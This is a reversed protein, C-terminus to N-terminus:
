YESTTSQSKEYKIQGHQNTRPLGSEDLKPSADHWHPNPHKQDPPHQSQVRPRGDAGETTYQRRGRGGSQSTASRSTPTNAQRMADRRAARSTVKKSDATPADGGGGADDKRMSSNPSSGPRELAGNLTDLGQGMAAAGSAALAAGLAAVGAGPVAGFGGTTVAVAGGAVMFGSGALMDFAGGAVEGVGKAVQYLTSFDRDAGTLNFLIGGPLVGSAVGIVSGAIVDTVDRAVDMIQDVASPGHQNSTSSQNNSVSQTKATAKADDAKPAPAASTQQAAAVAGSDDMDAVPPPPTDNISASIGMDAGGSVQRGTPDTFYLPNNLAYGYRNFEQLNSIDGVLPDPTLFRMTAPDYLRAGMNILGLEDDHEHGTFGRRVSSKPSEGQRTPNLPDIRGGFPDFRFREVVKGTQDTVTEVSGLHENLTYDIRESAKGDAHRVHVVQAFAGNGGSIRYVNQLEGDTFRREFLSGIYTTEFGDDRRKHVRRHYADYAFMTKQSTGASTMEISEPLSFSTYAVKRGPAVTQDGRRNYTYTGKPGSTVAHPGANVGHGFTISSGEGATVLRDKINGVDDFVYEFAWSKQGAQYSWTKLRNLADYSFGENINSREDKRVTLNGALDYDYFFAQLVKGDAALSDIRQQLVDRIPDFKQGATIGNGFTEKTIRAQADVEDLKWYYQSSGDQPRVSALRGTHQDYDNTVAFRARSEVNPYHLTKTRSYVDYETDFDFETAGVRTRANIPRSLADFHEEVTVVENGSSVNTRTFSGLRGVGFIASDWEFSDIGLLNFSGVPRGLSDYQHVTTTAEADTENILEGFANSVFSTLGADPDLLSLRRGRSDYEIKTEHNQPDWIKRLQSFPGYSYRTILEKGRDDFQATRVLRRLTDFEKRTRNGNADVVTEVAGQYTHEVNSGDANTISRLQHFNDFLYQRYVPAQTEKHPKASRMLGFGEAEYDQESIDWTGAFGLVRTEIVRGLHDTSTISTEGGGTAEFIRTGVHTDNPLYSRRTDAEDPSDHLVLRGFGDYQWSEQVGNADERLALKGFSPEFAQRVIHGAANRIVVPYTGDGKDYTFQTQRKTGGATTETKHTVNGVADRIYETELFLKSTLDVREQPETIVREVRATQSNVAIETTRTSKEGDAASSTEVVGTPLGLLWSDLLTRYSTDRVVRDGEGSVVELHVPNGFDDFGMKTVLQAFPAATGEIKDIETVTDPLVAVTGGWSPVKTQYMTERRKIRVLSSGAGQVARLTEVRPLGLFPYLTGVRSQNDFETTVVTDSEREHVRRKGFGLFGRGRIDIRGDFYEYDYHRSGKMGENVDLRRVVEIGKTLCHQPYTCGAGQSYGSDAEALSKYNVTAIGGTGDVVQRILHPRPGKRYYIHFRHDDEMKVLDTLGDGNFDGTKALVRLSVISGELTSKVDDGGPLTVERVAFNEGKSVYLVPKPRLYPPDDGKKLPTDDGKDWLLLDQRGDQDWDVVAVNGGTDPRLIFYQGRFGQVGDPYVLPQTMADFGNGSNISLYPQSVFNPVYNQVRVEPSTSVVDDLGDGNVDVFYQDVLSGETPPWQAQAWVRLNNELGQVKGDSFLRLARFYPLVGPVHRNALFSVAQDGDTDRSYGRHGKGYFYAQGEYTDNGHDILEVLKTYAPALVGNQNVRVGLHFLCNEKDSCTKDADAEWMPRLADPLGDGNIDAFYIEFDTKKHEARPGIFQLEGPDVKGVFKSGNFRFHEWHGSKSGDSGRYAIFDDKGDRDIDILHGPVFSASERNLRDVVVQGTPAFTEIASGLSTHGAFMAFWSAEGDAKPEDIHPSRYLLDDLGDGNLDGVHLFSSRFEPKRFASSVPGVDFEADVSSGKTWYFFTPAKCVNRADCEEVSSLRSRPNEEGVTLDYDMHYARVDKYFKIGPHGVPGFATARSTQVVIRSLRKKELIRVGSVYQVIPDPRDEYHMFVRNAGEYKSGEHNTYHVHDLRVSVGNKETPYVDRQYFYNISNGDRDVSKVLFWNLRVTPGFASKISKSLIETNDDRTPAARPAELIANPANPLSGYTHIWGEKDRVEFRLPGIDDTQEVTIRAFEERETRFQRRGEFPEPLELLRKGDWCLADADDFAIPAPDAAVSLDRECRGIASPGKLRWGVGLLGNGARSSYGMSLRPEVGLRGPPIEIPINYTFAGDHSVSLDGETRGAAVGELQSTTQVTDTPPKRESSAGAVCFGNGVYYGDGQLCSFTPCAKASPTATATRQGVTWTVQPGSFHVAVVDDHQGPKFLTPQGLPSGTGPNFKNQPGLEVTLTKSSRNQYGFLAVHDGPVDNDSTVCSVVPQLTEALGEAQTWKVAADFLAWSFGSFTEAMGDGAFFGVRASPAAKGVMMDGGRYGFIAAKNDAAPLPRAAIAASSSPVGWILKSPKTAIQVEGAFGGSLASPPSSIAIKTVDHRDGYSTMWGPVEATMKLEDFLAPEMVIMPVRIDTLAVGVDASHTSESIVILRRGTTSGADVSKGSLVEVRYGLAVLRERLLVDSPSGEGILLADAATSPKRESAWWVVRDFLEWGAATFMSPTGEGAFFGVRTGPATFGGFMQDGADYAFIAARSESSPLSAIRSASASPNGWVFKSPSTAVVLSGSLGAGSPHGSESMVIKTSAPQDGFDSQWVPGTMKLDDFLAPELVVLPAGTLTLKSGVDVSPTSEAVVVIDKGIADNSSLQRGTVTAVSFGLKQLQNLLLKDSKTGEAVLLASPVPRAIVAQSQVPPGNTQSDDGGCGFNPVTLALAAIAIRCRLRSFRGSAFLRFTAPQLMNACLVKM